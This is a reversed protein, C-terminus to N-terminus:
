ECLFLDWFQTKKLKLLAFILVPNQQSCRCPSHVGERRSDGENEMRVLGGDVSPDRWTLKTRSLTEEVIARKSALSQTEAFSRSVVRVTVSVIYIFNFQVFMFPLLFYKLVVPM